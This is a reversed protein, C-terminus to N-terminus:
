FNRRSMAQFPARKEQVSLGYFNYLLSCFNKRCTRPQLMDFFPKAMDKSSGDALQEKYKYIHTWGCMEGLEKVDDRFDHVKVPTDFDYEEVLKNLQPPIPVQTRAKTKTSVVHFTYYEKGNDYM